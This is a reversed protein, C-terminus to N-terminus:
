RHRRAVAVAMAIIEADAAGKAELALMQAVVQHTTQTRWDHRHLAAHHFRHAPITITAPADADTGKVGLPIIVIGVQLLVM